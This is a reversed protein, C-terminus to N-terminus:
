DCMCNVGMASRAEAYIREAVEQLMARCEDDAEERSMASIDAGRPQQMCAWIRGRLKAIERASLGM